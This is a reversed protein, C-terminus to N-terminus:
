TIFYPPSGNRRGKGQDSEYVRDLGPSVSARSLTRHTHPERTNGETGERPEVSEAEPQGSKNALKAAVISSDSKELKNMM